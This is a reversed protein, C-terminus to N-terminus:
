GTLVVGAVHQRGLLAGQRSVLHCIYLLPPSPRVFMVIDARTGQCSTLHPSEPEGCGYTLAEDPVRKMVSLTTLALNICLSLATRREAEWANLDLNYDSGPSAQAKAYVAQLWRHAMTHKSHQRTVDLQFMQNGDILRFALRNEQPVDRVTTM